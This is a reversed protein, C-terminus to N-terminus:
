RLVVFPVNSSLTRSPLQVQVTGSTAGSPVEAVILTQSRVKFSAAVGNFTVSTAGDLNTGLIGVKKGVRAAAPNTEVFPGLGMSLRFVVGYQLGGGFPTGGFATGYFTGNTDQVLATEPNAGDTCENQSCFDYLNTLEGDPTIQFITGCGLNPCNDGNFSKSGGYETTGYFNGDTGQVLGAVPEDGDACPYIGNACFQYITTLTGGPTIKFITDGSTTTGYFNGDSGEVLPTTPNYGDACNPQSCFSHLTTLTGSATMSFVTGGGTRGAPKRQEMFSGMRAWFWGM